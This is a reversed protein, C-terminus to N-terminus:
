GGEGLSDRWDDWPQCELVGPTRHYPPVIQGSTCDSPGIDGGAGTSSPLFNAPGQSIRILHGNADYPASADALNQFFSAIEPTFIRLQDAVPNLRELLPTFKELTPPAVKLLELQQRLETPASDVLKKTEAIFPAAAKTAPVVQDAFPGLEDLVPGAEAVTTRLNPIAQNTRDLLGRAGALAPGLDQISSALENQRNATTRLLTATREAAEGLDNPSEALASVVTQGQSVITRLAEGDANVQELLKATQNLAESSHNLGRQFDPGRELLAEDLGVLVKKIDARTDPTLTSVALDFDVPNDTQAGTLVAGDELEAATPDGESLDVVRNVAGVNSALKINAVAGEYLKFDTDISMTVEPFQEDNLEVSDVTGVVISGATVDGGPILGRVDDFIGKVEYTDRSAAVVAILSFLALALLTFAVVRNAYPGVYGFPGRGSM